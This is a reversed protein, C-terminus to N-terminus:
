KRTKKKEKYRLMASDRAQALARSDPSAEGWSSPDANSMFAPSVGCDHYDAGSSEASLGSLSLSMSSGTPRAPYRLGLKEAGSCTASASVDLSVMSIDPPGPGAPGAVDSRPRPPVGVSCLTM